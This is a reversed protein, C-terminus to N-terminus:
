AAPAYLELLRVPYIEDAKPDLTPSPIFEPAIITKYVDRNTKAYNLSYDHYKNDAEAFTLYPISRNKNYQLIGRPTDEGFGIYQAPIQTRYLEYTRKYITGNKIVILFSNAQTLLGRVFRPDTFTSYSISTVVSNPVSYPVFNELMTNAGNPLQVPWTALFYNIQDQVTINPLNYESPMTFSVFNVPSTVNAIAAPYLTELYYTIEDAVDPVITSDSAQEVVQTNDAVFSTNPDHLWQDILDIKCIDIKVRNTNILRYTDDLAYLYGGLVLLVTTGTFDMNPFTLTVASLLAENSADINDATIPLITHGGLGTTDYIAVKNQKSTKINAFGGQVFIEKNFFYTKHFVGNVAVLCNSFDRTNSSIALDNLIDRSYIDNRVDPSDISTYDVTVDSTIYADYVNLRNDYGGTDQDIFPLDTSSFGAIQLDTLSSAFATLSVAYNINNEFLMFKALDIVYTLSANTGSIYLYAKEGILSSLLQTGDTSLCIEGGKVIYTAIYSAM